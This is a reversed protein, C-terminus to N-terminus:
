EVEKDIPYYGCDDGLLNNVCNLVIVGGASHCYDSSIGTFRCGKAEVPPVTATVSLSAIVTAVVVFCLCYFKNRM